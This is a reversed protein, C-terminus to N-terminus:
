GHCVGVSERVVQLGLGRVCLIPCGGISRGDARKSLDSVEVLTVGHEVRLDGVKLRLMEAKRLGAGASLAMGALLRNRQLESTLSEAQNRFTEVENPTYFGLESSSGFNLHVTESPNWEPNVVQGVRTAVKRRVIRQHNGVDLGHSGAEIFNPSFVEEVGIGRGQKDAERYLDWLSVLVEGLTSNFSIDTQGASNEIFDSM